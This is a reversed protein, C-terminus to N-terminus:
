LKVEQGSNYTYTPTGSVNVSRLRAYYGGPVMGFIPTGATQVSQLALALSISQANTLRGIEIWNGATASNTPCIELVIYGSSTGGITATTVITTSYTVNADQTASIQFGNAAAAVTQISHSPSNNFTRTPKNILDNYDGSLAATPFLSLDIQVTGGSHIIGTGFNVQMPGGSTHILFADTGSTNDGFWNPELATVSANVDYILYNHASQASASVLLVALASLLVLLKKM